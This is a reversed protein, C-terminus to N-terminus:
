PLARFEDSLVMAVAREALSGERLNSETSLLGEPDPDRDLIARYLATGVSGLTLSARREAFEPSGVIGNVAGRLFGAAVQSTFAALGAPDAERGLLGRYLREVIARAAEASTPATKAKGTPRQPPLPETSGM